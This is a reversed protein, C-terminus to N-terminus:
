SILNFLDVTGGYLNLDTVVSHFQNNLEAKIINEVNIRISEIKESDFYELLKKCKNESKEMEVEIQRELVAKSFDRMAIKLISFKAHVTEKKDCNKYINSAVNIVIPENLLIQFTNIEESIENVFRILQEKYSEIKNKNDVIEDLIKSASVTFKKIKKEPIFKDCEPRKNKLLQLISTIKQKKSELSMVNKNYINEIVKIFVTIATNIMILLNKYSELKDSTPDFIRSLAARILELVDSELPIERQFSDYSIGELFLYPSSWEDMMNDITELFKEKEKTEEHDFKLEEKTLSRKRGSDIGSNGIPGPSGVPGYFDSVTIQKEADVEEFQTTINELFNLIQDM